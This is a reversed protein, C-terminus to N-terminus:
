TSTDPKLNIKLQLDRAYRYKWAKTKLLMRNSRRYAAQVESNREKRKRNVEFPTESISQRRRQARIRAQEREVDINSNRNPNVDSFHYLIFYKCHM